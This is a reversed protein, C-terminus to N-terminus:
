SFSDDLKEKSYKFSDESELEPADFNIQCTEESDDSSYKM